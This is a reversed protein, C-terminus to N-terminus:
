YSTLKVRITKSLRALVDYMAAKTLFRPCLNIAMSVYTKKIM